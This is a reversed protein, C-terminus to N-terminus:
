IVPPSALTLRDMNGLRIEVTERYKSPDLGLSKFVEITGVSRFTSGTLDVELVESESISLVILNDEIATIRGISQDFSDRSASTFDILVEATADKWAHILALGAIENDSNM